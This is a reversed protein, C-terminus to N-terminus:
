CDVRHGNNTTSTVRFSPLLLSSRSLSPV